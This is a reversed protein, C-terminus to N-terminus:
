DYKELNVDLEDFLHLYVDESNKNFLEKIRDINENDCQEQHSWGAFVQEFMECLSGTMPHIFRIEPDLNKNDGDDLIAEISHNKFIIKMIKM